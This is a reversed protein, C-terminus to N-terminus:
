LSDTSSRMRPASSLSASERAMVCSTARWWDSRAVMEGSPVQM